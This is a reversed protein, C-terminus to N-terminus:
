PEVGCFAPKKEGKEILNKYKKKKVSIEELVDSPLGGV